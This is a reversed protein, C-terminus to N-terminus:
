RACGSLFNAADKYYREEYHFPSIGWCHNKDAAYTLPLDLELLSEMHSRFCANCDELVPNVDAMPIGDAFPALACFEDGDRCRDAGLVKHLVVQLDPLRERLTAAFRACADRWLEQTRADSRPVRAFGRSTLRDVGMKMLIASCTVMSDGLRLLDWREDVFDVILADCKSAELDDFFTKEFDAKVVRRAFNSPWDFDDDGFELPSSMLSLLSCRSHYSVLEGLDRNLRFIDGSVCSGFIAFRRRGPDTSPRGTALQNTGLVTM